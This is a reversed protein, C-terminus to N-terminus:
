CKKAVKKIKRLLRTFVPNEIINKKITELAGFINSVQQMIKVM